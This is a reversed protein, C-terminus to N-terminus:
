GVMECARRGGRRPPPDRRDPGRRAHRRGADHLWGRIARASRGMRRSRRGARSREGRARDRGSRPRRGREEDIAAQMRPAEEATHRHGPQSGADLRGTLRLMRPGAIWGLDRNPARALFRAEKIPPLAEGRLEGHPGGSWFARLIAIAEELADVAGRAAHASAAWRRSRTGSRAPGAGRGAALVDLSAMSKAPVSPLRLPLNIVDPVLRLRETRGAAYALLTWTDFFRRQYPHDQVGILDLGAHDAAVIQEITSDPDTADPVVFIGLKVDMAAGVRDAVGGRRVGYRPDREARGRLRDGRSGPPPRARVPVRGRAGRQRLRAPHRVVMRDHPAFADTAEANRQGLARQYERDRVASTVILSGDGGNLERVWAAMLTLVELAEPRLARYLARDADLKPAAEGLQDGVVYGLEDGGPLPALDGDRWASALEGPDFVETEARPHFVEEATAKAAHLRELRRLEVRDERYLRMIERSALVKWYYESSEDGFGALLDWAEPHTSPSSDFFLQAYTLEDEAVVDGVPGSSGTYAHIVNELNGIGMHYSEVALDEAGFRERALALYRM